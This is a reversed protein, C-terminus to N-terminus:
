GGSVPPLFAVERVGGLPSKWDAWELDCVVLPRFSLEGLTAHREVLRRWLGEVTEDPACEVRESRVGTRDALSAFWRVEVSREEARSTM